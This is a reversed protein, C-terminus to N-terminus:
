HEKIHLRGGMLFLHCYDNFAHSNFYNASSCYMCCCANLMLCACLCAHQLCLAFSTSVPWHTHAPNVHPCKPLCAQHHHHHYTHTHTHTHVYMSHNTLHSWGVWSILLCLCSKNGWLFSVGNDSCFLNGLSCWFYIIWMCVSWM